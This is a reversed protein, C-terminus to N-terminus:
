SDSLCGSLCDSLYGSLCDSLSIVILWSVKLAMKLKFKKLFDSTWFDRVMIIVLQSCYQDTTVM